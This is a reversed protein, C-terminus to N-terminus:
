TLDIKNPYTAGEIKDITNDVTPILFPDSEMLGNVRRFYICDDMEPKSVPAM